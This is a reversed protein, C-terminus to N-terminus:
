GRPSCCPNKRRFVDFRDFQRGPQSGADSGDVSAFIGHEVVDDTMPRGNFGMLRGNIRLAGGFLGPQIRFFQPALCGLGEVM